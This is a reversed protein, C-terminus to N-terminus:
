AKGQCPRLTEDLEPSWRMAPGDIKDFVEPRNPSDRIVSQVKGWDMDIGAKAAVHKATGLEKGIAAAFKCAESDSYVLHRVKVSL